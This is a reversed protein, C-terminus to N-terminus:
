GSGSGVPPIPLLMRPSRLSGPQEITVQVRVNEHRAGPGPVLITAILLADDEEIRIEAREGARSIVGPAALPERSGDELLREITLDTRYEDAEGLRVIRATIGVDGSTM